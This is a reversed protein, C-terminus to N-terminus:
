ELLLRRSCSSFANSRWRHTNYNDNNYKLKLKLVLVIHLNLMLLHINSQMPVESFVNAHSSISSYSTYPAVQGKQRSCSHFTLLPFVLHRTAIFHRSMRVKKANYKIPLPPPPFSAHMGCLACGCRM